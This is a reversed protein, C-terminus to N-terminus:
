IIGAIPAEDRLIEYYTNHTSLFHTIVRLTIIHQLLLFSFLSQFRFTPINFYIIEQSSSINIRTM